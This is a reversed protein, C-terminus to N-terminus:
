EAERGNIRDLEYEAIEEATLERDYELINWYKGSSDETVNKLGRMPQCFPSYGRLRMGYRYM